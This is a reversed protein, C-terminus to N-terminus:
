KKLRNLQNKKYTELLYKKEEEFIVPFFAEICQESCLLYKRGGQGTVEEWGPNKDEFEELPSLGRPRSSLSLNQVDYPNQSPAM